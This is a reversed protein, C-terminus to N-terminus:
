EDKKTKKNRFFITLFMANSNCSVSQILQIPEVECLISNSMKEVNKGGIARVVKVDVTDKVTEDLIVTYYLRGTSPNENQLAYRFKGEKLVEKLKEEITKPSKESTPFELIKIIM